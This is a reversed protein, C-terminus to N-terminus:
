LLCAGCGVYVGVASVQNQQVQEALGTFALFHSLHNVEVVSRSCENISTAPLQPLPLMM